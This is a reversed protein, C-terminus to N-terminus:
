KRNRMLSAGGFVLGLGGVVLAAIAMGDGDDESPETATEEAAADEETAEHEAEVATLTVAPAPSELEEASEGEAPIEIWGTQGKECKQVTPFYVTEGEGPPLKVSIAFRDLYHAPLPADEATWIVESVGRTITEGHLEVEDKPGEKTELSWGPHVEPTAQPVTEPIQVRVQTTPSEECGHPVEFDLTAYGDAPGETPNVTIHAAAAAPVVLAGAMVLALTRKLM